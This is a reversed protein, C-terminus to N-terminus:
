WSGNKSSTLLLSIDSLENIWQFTNPDIDKSFPEMLETMERYMAASGICHFVRDGASLLGVDQANVLFEITTEDLSRVFPLDKTSFSPSGTMSLSRFREMLASAEEATFDFFRIIPCDPSGDPLYDIKM